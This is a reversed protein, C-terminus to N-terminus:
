AFAGWGLTAAARPGQGRAGALRAPWLAARASKNRERREGRWGARQQEGSATGALAVIAASIILSRMTPPPLHHPSLHSSTDSFFSPLPFPAPTRVCVCVRNERRRNKECAGPKGLGRGSQPPASIFHMLTHTPLSLSLPHPRPGPLHFLLRSLLALPRPRTPDPRSEHSARQARMVFFFRARRGVGM